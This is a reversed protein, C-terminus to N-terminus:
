LVLAIAQLPILFIVLCGNGVDLLLHIRKSVAEGISTTTVLALALAYKLECLVDALGIVSGGIESTLCFIQPANGLFLGLFSCDFLRLPLLLSIGLISSSALKFLDLLLNLALDLADFRVDRSRVLLPLAKLLTLGPKVLLVITEYGGVGFPEGGLLSSFLFTCSQSCLASIDLMLIPTVDVAIFPPSLLLIDSGSLHHLRDLVVFLEKKLLRVLLHRNRGRRLTVKGACAHRRVTIAEGAEREWREVGM